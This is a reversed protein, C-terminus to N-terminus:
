VRLGHYLCVSDACHLNIFVSLVSGKVRNERPVKEYYDEM